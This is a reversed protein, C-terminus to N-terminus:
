FSMKHIAKQFIYDGYKDTSLPVTMFYAQTETIATIVYGVGHVMSDINLIIIKQINEVGNERFCQKIADEDCLFVIARQFYETSKFEKWRWNDPDNLALFQEQKESGYDYSIGTLLLQGKQKEFRFITYISPYLRNDRPNNIFDIVDDGSEGFFSDFSMNILQNESNTTACGCLFIIMLFICLTRKM